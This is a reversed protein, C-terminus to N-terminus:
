LTERRTGAERTPSAQMRALVHNLKTTTIRLALIAKQKAAQERAEQVERAHRIALWGGFSLLVIVVGALALSPRFLWWLLPLPRQPQRSAPVGAEAQHIRAMVRQTFAAGPDEPRLASRLDDESFQM